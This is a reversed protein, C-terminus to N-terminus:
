GRFQELKAPDLFFAAGNPQEGENPSGALSGQVTHPDLQGFESGLQWRLDFAASLHEAEFGLVEYPDQQLM